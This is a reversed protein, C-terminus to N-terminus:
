IRPNTFSHTAMNKEFRAYTGWILCFDSGNWMGIM